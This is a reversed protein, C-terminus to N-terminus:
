SLLTLLLQAIMDFAFYSVLLLLPNVGGKKRYGEANDIEDDAEIKKVTAVVHNRYAWDGFLGSLIRVVLAGLNGLTALIIPFPNEILHPIMKAFVAPWDSGVPMSLVTNTLESQLPFLCITCALMIVATLLGWKYQKRSFFWGYPLLFAAWNWGARRKGGLQVFKPIYRQANAGVFEAAQQATIGDIDTKKHIGGLPNYVAVFPMRPLGQMGGAMPAGCYSCFTADEPIEKQCHPCQAKPTATEAASAKAEQVAQRAQEPNYQQPTDHYQALGCHGISQYCDRHQPAGCVPCVVIDDEEFLYSQCIPCKQGEYKNPM